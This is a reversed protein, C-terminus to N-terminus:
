RKSSTKKRAAARPPAKRGSPKKASRAKARTSRKQAALLEGLRVRAEETFNNAQTLLGGQIPGTKGIAGGTKGRRIGRIWVNSFTLAAAGEWVAEAVQRSINKLGTLSVRCPKAVLAKAVDPTLTTIGDLVLEEGRYCALESAVEISLNRIGNLSITEKCASLARAVAADIETLGDLHLVWGKFQALSEAAAPTLHAIGNLELQTKTGRCQVLASAAEPSITNLGNLTSWDNRGALLSAIEKSLTTLGDLGLPGKHKALAEASESSLTKVRDLWIWDKSKALASAVAPSVQPIGLRLPKKLRVLIAAVEPTLSELNTLELGGFSAAQPSCALAKAEDTTLTKIAKLDEAM